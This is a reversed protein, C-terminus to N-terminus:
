TQGSFSDLNKPKQGGVSGSQQATPNCNPFWDILATSASQVAFHIRREPLCSSHLVPLGSLAVQSLFKTPLFTKPDKGPRVASRRECYFRVATEQDGERVVRPTTLLCLPVVARLSLIAKFGHLVTYVAPVTYLHATEELLTQRTGTSANALSATVPVALQMGAIM